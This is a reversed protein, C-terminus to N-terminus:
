LTDMFCKLPVDFEKAYIRVGSSASTLTRDTAQLIEEAMTLVEPESQPLAKHVHIWNAIEMEVAQLVILEKRTMLRWGKSGKVCRKELDINDTFIVRQLIHLIVKAIIEKHVPTEATVDLLNSLFGVSVEGSSAYFARTADDTSFRPNTIGGNYWYADLVDSCEEQYIELKERLDERVKSPNISYLYAVVRSRPLILTDQMRGQADRTAIVCCRFRRDKLKVSQSGWDLGLNEVLRRAVLGPQNNEMKIIELKDGYFEIVDM